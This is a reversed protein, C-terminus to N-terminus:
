WGTLCVVIEQSASEFQLISMWTSVMESLRNVSIMLDRLTPSNALLCRALLMDAEDGKFDDILVRELNQFFGDRKCNLFVQDGNGVEADERQAPREILVHLRSINPCQSILQMLVRVHETVPWMCIELVVLKPLFLLGQLNRFMALHEVLWAKLPHFGSCLLKKTVKIVARSLDNLTQAHVYSNNGNIVLQVATSPVVLEKRESNSHIYTFAALNPVNQLVVSCKDMELCDCMILETLGTSSVSIVGTFIINCFIMSLKILAPFTSSLQDMFSAPIDAFKVNLKRLNPLKSKDPWTLVLDMVAVELNVLHECSFISKPLMRIEDKTMIGYLVLTRSHHGAAFGIWENRIPIRCRQIPWLRIEFIKVHSDDHRALTNNIFEEYCDKMRQTESSYDFILIPVSLWAQRLSKSMLGVKAADTTPLLSMINRQMEPLLTGLTNDAEVILNENSSSDNDCDVGEQNPNTTGAMPKQIQFLSSNLYLSMVLDTTSTIPLLFLFQLPFLYHRALTFTTLSLYTDTMRGTWTDQVLVDPISAPPPPRFGGPAGDRAPPLSSLTFAESASKCRRRM